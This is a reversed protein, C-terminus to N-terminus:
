QSKIEEITPIQVREENDKSKSKSPLRGLGLRAREYNIDFLRKMEEESLKTAENDSDSSDRLDALTHVNSARSNAQKRKEAKKRKKLDKFTVVNAALAQMCLLLFIMIAKNSRKM